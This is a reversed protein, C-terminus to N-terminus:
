LPRGVLLMVAIWAAFGTLAIAAFFTAASDAFDTYPAFAVTVIWSIGGVITVMAAIDATVAVAAAVVLWGVIWPIM